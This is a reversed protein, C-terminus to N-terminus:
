ILLKFTLYGFPSAIPDNNLNISEWFNFNGLLYRFSLSLEPTMSLFTPPERFAFRMAYLELSLASLQFSLAKMDESRFVFHPASRSDQIIVRLFPFIDVILAQNQFKAFLRTIIHRAKHYPTADVSNVSTMLFTPGIMIAHHLSCLTLQNFNLWYFNPFSGLKFRHDGRRSLLHVIFDCYRCFAKPFQCKRVKTRPAETYFQLNPVFEREM